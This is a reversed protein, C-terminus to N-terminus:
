GEVGGTENMVFESPTTDTLGNVRVQGGYGQPAAVFPSPPFGNVM